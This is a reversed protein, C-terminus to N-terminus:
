HLRSTRSGITCRISRRLRRPRLPRHPRRHLFMLRRRPRPTRRQLPRRPPARGNSGRPPRRLARRRRMPSPSCRRPPRPPLPPRRLARSRAREPPRQLSLRRRARPRLRGSSRRSPSSESTSSRGGGPAGARLPRGGDGADEVSSEGRRGCGRALRDHRRACVVDIRVGREVARPEGDDDRSVRAGDRRRADGPAQGERGGRVAVRGSRPHGGRPRGRERHASRSRARARSPRNRRAGRASRPRQELMNPPPRTSSLEACIRTLTPFDFPPHGVLLEYFIAGISWVDARVDVAGSGFLQEPSMYKPSGLVVGTQTLDDLEGEQASWKSIGFDLIKILDTGDARKTVFLNSPKLDRHIIGHAHAEAMGECVQIIYDVARDVPLAGFNRTVKRLDTGTLHEMVMFLAHERWTGIDIVRTIHENKLKASVQAERRFRARFDSGNDARVYLFKLAVKERLEQHTAAVVVGMAGRGLVADVRYKGDIVTGEKLEKLITRPEIAEQVFDLSDDGALAEGPGSPAAAPVSRSAPADSAVSDTPAPPQHSAADASPAAM